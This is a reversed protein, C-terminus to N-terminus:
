IDPELYKRLLAMVTPWPTWAVTVLTLDWALCLFSSGLTQSQYLQLLIRPTCPWGWDEGSISANWVQWVAHLKLTSLRQGRHSPQNFFNCFTIFYCYKMHSVNDNISPKWIYKCQLVNCVCAFIIIKKLILSSINNIIKRYPLSLFHYTCWIINNVKFILAMQKSIMMLSNLNDSNIYTDLSDNKVWLFADCLNPTGRSIKRKLLSCFHHSSWAFQLCTVSHILSSM